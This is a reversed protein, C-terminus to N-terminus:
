KIIVLKRTVSNTNTKLVYFYIGSSLQQSNFRLTYTNPTLTNNLLVEVERGQVNYIKLSTHSPKTITFKIRTQSNFPNPYNQYLQFDPQAETESNVFIASGNVLKIILSNDGCLWGTGADALDMSFIRLSTPIDAYKWTYGSNTTRYLKNFSLLYGTNQNIFKLSIINENITSLQTWNAGGNTTRRVITTTDVNSIVWGTQLNLFHYDSIFTASNQTWNVGGNSTTLLYSNNYGFGNQADIFDAKSIYNVNNIVNWNLGNNTTKFIFNDAFAWGTQSNLFHLSFIEGTYNYSINWNIGFNTTRYVTGRDAIAFGTNVDLFSSYKIKLSSSYSDFIWNTGGNTSKWNASNLGNCWLTNANISQVKNLLDNQKGLLTDFVNGANTTKFIRSYYDALYFVSDSNFYSTQFGSGTVSTFWSSGGNTTKIIKSLSTIFGTNLDSFYLNNPFFSSFSSPSEIWNVGGNSTKLVFLNEFRSGACWGTLANMFQINSIEFADITTNYWTWNLGANTTKFIYSYDSTLNIASVFGTQSNVFYVDFYKYPSSNEPSVFIWNSGGNTTKGIKNSSTVIGTNQNIFCLDNVQTQFSSNLIWNNGGNSTFYIKSSDNLTFCLLTDVIYVKRFSAKSQVYQQSYNLGGNTTKLILGHNGVAWGTQNFFNIHNISEPMYFPNQYEFISQASINSFLILYFIVYKFKHIIM